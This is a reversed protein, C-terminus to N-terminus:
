FPSIFLALYYLTPGGFLFADCRDLAGGHGPFLTGSDKVGADRKLMSEVLDGLQGVVSLIIGVLAYVLMPWAPYSSWGFSEKLYYLVIGTAAACFLAAISGEMTKNPSIRPALKHKGFAKGIAYAGTDSMGVMAILMTVLGPGIGPMRHMAVFFSACYGAYMLGFVSTSLGAITHRASLLHLVILVFLAAFLGIHPAHVFVEKFAASLVLLPALVVAAHEHVDLNLMRALNFFERAGMASLFMILLVFAWTLSPLWIILGVMPLLILATTLRLKTGDGRFLTM